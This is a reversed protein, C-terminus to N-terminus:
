YINYCPSNAVCTEVMPNSFWVRNHPSPTAPPPPQAPHITPSYMFSLRHVVESVIRHFVKSMILPSGPVPLLLCHQYEEPACLHVETVSALLVVYVVGFVFRSMTIM